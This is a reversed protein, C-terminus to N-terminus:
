PLMRARRPPRDRCHWDALIGNDTKPESTFPLERESSAEVALRVAEAPEGAAAHRQQLAQDQSAAGIFRKANELSM